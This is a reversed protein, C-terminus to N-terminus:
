PLVVFSAVAVTQAKYTTVKDMTQQLLGGMIKNASETDTLTHIIPNNNADVGVQVSTYSHDFYRYADIIDRISTNGTDATTVLNNAFVAPDNVTFTIHAM